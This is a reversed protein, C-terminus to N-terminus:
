GGRRIFLVKMMVGDEVYASKRLPLTLETMVCIFAPSISDSKFYTKRSYIVEIALSDSNTIISGDDASGTAVITTRTRM